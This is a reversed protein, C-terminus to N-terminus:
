GAIDEGNGETEGSGYTTPPIEELPDDGLIERIEDPLPLRADTGVVPEGERTAAADTGYLIAEIKAIKEPTTKLSNIALHAVPKFPKGDADKGSVNVPTTSIEYSFTVAEPSDNVTSNTKESPNATGGYILHIKFGYDEGETDNGVKTRYSLGFSNRRQQSLMVGKVLESEGNCAAWEDPYTYCEITASFEEASKLSLYKMNDAWLANSEAGSPSESVSILGSWAVGKPYTGNKQPYLVGHDCGTEYLREGIQDWKLKSM